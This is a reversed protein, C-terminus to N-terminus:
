YEDGVQPRVRVPGSILYGRRCVLALAGSELPSDQDYLDFIPEGDIHAWLRQGEVALSLDYARNLEWPFGVEALIHAGDLAKILRAMGDRELTLAYYRELGQVRVAVGIAEALYSRVQASVCIDRWDRTGQILLGVGRNQAMWYTDPPRFDVSDVADVWARHWM